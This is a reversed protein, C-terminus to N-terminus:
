RKNKRQFYISTYIKYLEKIINANHSINVYEKKTEPLEDAEFMNMVNYRSMPDFQRYYGISLERKIYKDYFAQVIGITEEIPDTQASNFLVLLFDMFYDKHFALSYDGIGKIDLNESGNANNCFYFYSIKNIKYFSTYINKQLFEINGFKTVEPIKNVLFIADKKISVVEHDQINNAKFFLEMIEKFGNTLGDNIKENDRQLLGIQVKRAKDPLNYYYEYEQQSILGKYLLININAKSIDYERIYSSIIYELPTTYASSEYLM